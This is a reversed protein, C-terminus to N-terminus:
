NNIKEVEKVINQAALGYHDLVQMAPGSQGFQDDVGMKKLKFSNVGNELLASAIADGMGAMVNHEEVTILRGTKAVSKSITETDLPKISACNILEVNIGKEKLTNAAEFARSTMVGCAVVTVDSGETLLNAKGLEFKYSDDFLVPVKARGLRIYTPKEFNLSAYIMQYAEQADAPVLVQMEPITRMLAIDEIIQHSAGDEGVTLGSHTACVRVVLHNHAISNRVFEWARGSAFMAFSSAFPKKGARALGAAVGMMNNEAIGMNFFRDPYAKAFHKTQTSGSLDADLVVVDQDKEGIELLAKGYAERTAVMEGLKYDGKKLELATGM